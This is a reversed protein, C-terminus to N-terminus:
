RSPDPDTEFADPHFAKMHFASQAPHRKGQGIPCARRALCGKTRCTHGANTELHAKCTAVDYQGNAFADVPCSTVCPQQCTDCPSARQGQQPAPKSLAIAGRYSIFLGSQEHVLPGIPASFARGSRKAWGIFPMFPPGDSPFFPMGNLETAIGGLVRKSWRDLPHPQGDQAESSARFLPWFDPEDPSFLVISQVWEPLPDDAHRHVIGSVFLGVSKAQAHIDM